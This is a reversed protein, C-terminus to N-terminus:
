FGFKLTLGFGDGDLDAKFYENRRYYLHASFLFRQSWNNSYVVGGRLTLLSGELPEDFVRGVGASVEPSLFFLQSSLQVSHLLFLGSGYSNSIQGSKYVDLSRTNFHMYELSLTQQFYRSQVVTVGVEASIYEVDSIEGAGIGFVIKEPNIIINESSDVGAAAETERPKDRDRQVFYELAENYGPEASFAQHSMLSSFVLFAALKCM